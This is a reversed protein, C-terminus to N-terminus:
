GAFMQRVQQRTAQQQKPHGCSSMEPSCNSGYLYPMQSKCAHPRLHPCTGAWHAPIECQISRGGQLMISAEHDGTTYAGVAFTPAELRWAGLRGSGCGVGTMCQQQHLMNQAHLKHHRLVQGVAAVHSGQLLEYCSPINDEDQNAHLRNEDPPYCRVVLSPLPLHLM